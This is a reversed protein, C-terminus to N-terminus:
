VAVVSSGSEVRVSFFLAETDNELQDGSVVELLAFGGSSFMKSLEVGRAGFEGFNLYFSGLCCTCGGRHFSCRLWVLWVLWM